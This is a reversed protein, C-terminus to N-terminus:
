LLADHRYSQKHLNYPLDSFGLSDLHYLFCRQLFLWQVYSVFYAAVALKVAYRDVPVLISVHVLLLSFFYYADNISKM